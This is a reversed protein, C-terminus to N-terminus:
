DSEKPCQFLQTFIMQPQNNSVTLRLTIERRRLSIHEWTEVYIKSKGNDKRRDIFIIATFAGNSSLDKRSM